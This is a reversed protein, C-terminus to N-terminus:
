FVRGSTTMSRSELSVEEVKLGFKKLSKAAKDADAKKAGFKEAL